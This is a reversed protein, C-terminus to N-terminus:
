HSESHFGEGHAHFYGKKIRHQEILDNYESADMEGAIATEFGTLFKWDDACEPTHDGRSLLMLRNGEMKMPLCGRDMATEVLVHVMMMQKFLNMDIADATYKM